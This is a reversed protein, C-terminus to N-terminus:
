KTRHLVCDQYIDTPLKASTKAYEHEIKEALDPRSAILIKYYDSNPFINLGRYSKGAVLVEFATHHRQSIMYGLAAARIKELSDKSDIGVTCALNVLNDTSGSISVALPFGFKKAADYYLNEPDPFDPHNLQLESQELALFISQGASLDITENKRILHHSRLFQTERDSLPIELDRIHFTSLSKEKREKRFDNVSISFRGRGLSPSEKWYQDCLNWIQKEVPDRQDLKKSWESNCMCEPKNCIFRKDLIKIAANWSLYFRERLNGNEFSERILKPDNGVCGPMYTECRGYYKKLLEDVQTQVQNEDPNKKLQEKLKFVSWKRIWALFRLNLDKMEELGLNERIMVRAVSSELKKMAERYDTQTSCFRITQNRVSDSVGSLLHEVKEPFSIKFDQPKFRHGADIECNSYAHFPILLLFFLIYQKM